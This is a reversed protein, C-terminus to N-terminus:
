GPSTATTSSTATRSRRARPPAPRARPSSSTSRTTPTSRRRARRWSPRPRRGRRRGAADEWDDELVLTERLLPCEARVEDLMAVYDAQRFGRALVLLSVGTKALAYQLEAAKYAPNITVLIAGIRATAYQIVVWEYRNPAWIGVRDGKRVGRALLGRAALASRTGCSATPRATARTASSSRRATASASSPAACAEGITLELLPVDRPGAAHSLARTTAEPEILM